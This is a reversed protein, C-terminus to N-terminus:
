ARSREKEREDFRIVMDRVEGLTADLKDLRGVLQNVDEKNPMDRAISLEIAQVRGELRESRAERGDLSRNMRYLIFSLVASLALSLLSVWLQPFM